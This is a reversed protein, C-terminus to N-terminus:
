KTIHNRVTMAEGLGVLLVYAVRGFQISYYTRQKCNILRDFRGSYDPAAM